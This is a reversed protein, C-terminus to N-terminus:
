NPIKCEGRRGSVVTAPTAGASGAAALAYRLAAVYACHASFRDLCVRCWPLHEEVSEIGPEALTDLCYAELDDDAIHPVTM